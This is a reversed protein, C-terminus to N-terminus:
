GLLPYAKPFGCIVLWNRQPFLLLGGFLDLHVDHSVHSGTVPAIVSVACLFSCNHGPTSAPPPWGSHDVALGM